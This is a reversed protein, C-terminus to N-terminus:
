IAASMLLFRASGGSSRFDKEVDTLAQIRVKCHGGPVTGALPSRGPVFM